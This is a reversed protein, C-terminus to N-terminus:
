EVLKLAEAISDTDGPDFSVAPNPHSGSQV